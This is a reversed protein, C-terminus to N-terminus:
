ISGWVMLKITVVTYRKGASRRINGKYSFIPTLQSKKFINPIYSTRIMENVQHAVPLAIIKAITQRLLLM